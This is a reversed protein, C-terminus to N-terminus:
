GRKYLKAIIKKYIDIVLQNKLLILSLFYLFFSLFVTLCVRLFVFKINFKVQLICIVLVTISAVCYQWCEIFMNLIPFFKKAFFLCMICVVCEAILTAIAAGLYSYNPILIFNLIINVVCGFIIACFPYKEKRIPMFIQYVLFNNLPSFLLNIGLIQATNEAAYYSSGSIIYILDKALFIMGIASPVTCMIIFHISKKVLGEFKELGVNRVYYSLRPLVVTNLSCVINVIIKNLKTATNYIGVDYDGKELGIMLIDMNMYITSAISLGFIICMPKIYKILDKIKVLNFSVSIYKRAYFFNFIGSGATSIASLAVYITVDNEDHVLLFLLILSFIQVMVSRVTIYRYDEIINFFWEMGICSFIISLSSIFILYRYGISVPSILLFFLLVYSLLTSILNLFMMESTFKTLKKIDDRIKAGESIAYTNIGFTAILQFYSVITAVYSAKGMGEVLLVRSAYPFTILPFVISSINKIANMIFNYSISKNKM